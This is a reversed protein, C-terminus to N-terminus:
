VSSPNSSLDMQSRSGSDRSFRLETLTEGHLHRSLGKGGKLGERTCLLGRAPQVWRPRVPGQRTQVSIGSSSLFDSTLERGM